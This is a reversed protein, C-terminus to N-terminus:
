HFDRSPFLVKAQERPHRPRPIHKPQLPHKRLRPDVSPPHTVEDAPAHPASFRGGAHLTDLLDSRDELRRAIVHIVLGERQLEGHVVLLRATLVVRRYTEYVKPWVIINAVGTEDELTAFIVGKATGPRQRAIVLGSVSVRRPATMDKLTVNPAIAELHGRLLALPHARLSLRMAAYDEFVEQGLTMAPLRAPEEAGHDDENVSAFLPLPTAGLAKVEWLVERRKLKLSSFADAEALKELAAPKLGARLWLGRVDRYGNARAAVLWDADERALGKIQRFGIRLAWHPGDAMELTYDWDSANIDPPRVDVGHERADRIIQAPAYFGMPQSNLLACAFVDPYHKKMWASAYVLLAFSAAHSEPFGYEGFGEIQKFCREAFDRSYGRGAMGAIMKERFSHITGVRRFTAMARRLGDAESPTFGAAVVAIKMAQEQFLPVGLTRKLVERLDDSEYNVPEEGNRRRIYPHVMDGQIPGPRVIAVEIVLDYFSRPRMRPLFSMQARSEVQFVGLSDAECLMDYVAPDEKPLTALDFNEGYHRRLLEFGKRLCTLMGLGLVDIKLIGLASLDDKDWEVVTRDAMAANEVPVVEDLRGRTIIFGGVHQSLHRPFGILERALDLALRLRKDDPDLGVERVQDDRIEDISWGWTQSALTAVMDGSLGLAKGVERIASRSRFHIVTAALGARERGYKEYIYQIVEERREHEFDVDIDPPENREASVFREFLLEMHAPDVATIGLVYCVASNAASGRGQCLIDQSRAFRVIDHVTLFYPAFGLEEILAMEYAIQGQVKAPVGGPYRGPLHHEVLHALEQQPTRGEHTIEDPYEYALEALDFRCRDAIELTRAIAGEHGRFLAAMAAASKLHREANKQVRLGAEDITCKERMCMMVDALARRGAGHMIADNVAVLPAKHRRALAALRDLRARDGGQHLSQAALYVRDGLARAWRALTGAFAADPQEPALVALLLGDSFEMVDSEHLVCHGKEARRRGRSILRCLRGYAARDQPYALLGRGDALDIRAAPILRVPLNKAAEHARVIGALSNRDTIAIAEHGLRAAEAVLEEPQSAGELFSFASRAHLEAYAPSPAPYSVSV